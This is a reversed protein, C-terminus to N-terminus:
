FKGWLNSYLSDPEYPDEDLDREMADLTLLIEIPESPSTDYIAARLDNKAEIGDVLEVWIKPHQLRRSNQLWWDAKTLEVLFLLDRIVPMCLVAKHRLAYAKKVDEVKNGTIKPLLEM